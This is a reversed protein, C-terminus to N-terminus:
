DELEEPIAISYRRLQEIIYDKNDAKLYFKDPHHIYTYATSNAKNGEDYDKGTVYAAVKVLLNTDNKLLDYLMYYLVGIRRLDTVKLPTENEDANTTNEPTTVEGIFTTYYRNEEYRDSKKIGPYTLNRRIMEDTIISTDIVENNKNIIIQAEINLILNSFLDELSQIPYAQKISEIPEVGVFCNKNFETLIYVALDFSEILETINRDYINCFPITVLVDSDYRQLRKIIGDLLIIWKKVNYKRLVPTSQKNCLACVLNYIYKDKIEPKHASHQIIGYVLNYEDGKVEKTVFDIDTIYRM